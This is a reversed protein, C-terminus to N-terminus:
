LLGGSTGKRLWILGTWVVGEGIERLDMKVNDEWRCRPTGVPRQGEPNGMLIRYANKKGGM